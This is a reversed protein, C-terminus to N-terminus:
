WSTEGLWQCLDSLLIVNGRVRRWGRVGAESRGPQGSSPEMQTKMEVETGDRGGRVM